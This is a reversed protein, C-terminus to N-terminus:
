RFNEFVLNALRMRVDPPRSFDSADLHMSTRIYLRGSTYVDPHISAHAYICVDLHRFTCLDAKQIANIADIAHYKWICFADDIFTHLQFFILERQKKKLIMLKPWKQEHETWRRIKWIGYMGKCKLLKSSFLEVYWTFHGIEKILTMLFFFIWVNEM